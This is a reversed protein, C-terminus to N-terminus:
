TSSPTAVVDPAFNGDRPDGPISVGANANIPDGVPSEHSVLYTPAIPHEELGRFDVANGDPGVEDRHPRVGPSRIWAGLHLPESWILALPPALSVRGVSHCRSDPYRHSDFGLYGNRILWVSPRMRRLLRKSKEAIPLPPAPSSPCPKWSNPRM